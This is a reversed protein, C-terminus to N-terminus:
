EPVVDDCRIRALFAKAGPDPKTCFSIVVITAMGAMVGFIGGSTSQVHFWPEMHVGTLGLWEIHDFEVRVIYYISLALGVVMGSLAGIRTARDWFIGLVLAPFFASGAISFAWAVMSLITGPKEAAITAAMVAVVLLFSKSIV